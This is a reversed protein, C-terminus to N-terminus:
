DAIAAAPPRTESQKKLRKRSPLYRAMRMALIWGTMATAVAPAFLTWQESSKNMLVLITPFAVLLLLYSFHRLITPFGVVLGAIIAIAGLLLVEYRASMRHHQEIREPRPLTDITAITQLVSNRTRPSPGSLKDAFLVSNPLAGVSETIAKRTDEVQSPSYAEAALRELYLPRKARTIKFAGFEDIPVIPGDGLRLHDGLSIHVQEPSIDAQAMAVALPFSPIIHEGWRLIALQDTGISADPRFSFQTNPTFDISTPFVVSNVQRLGDAGSLINSIPIASAKLYSPIAQSRPLRELDVTVIVKEFQTLATNLSALRGIHALGEGEWSLPEEIAAIRCGVAHAHNLLGWWDEPELPYHLDEAAQEDVTIQLYPQSRGEVLPRVVRTRPDPQTKDVLLNEEKRSETLLKQFLADERDRLPKWDESLLTVCIGVELALFALVLRVIWSTM